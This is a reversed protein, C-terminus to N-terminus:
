EIDSKAFEVGQQVIPGSALDVQRNLFEGQRYIM